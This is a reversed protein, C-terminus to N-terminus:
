TDLVVSLLKTLRLHMALRLLPVEEIEEEDSDVDAYAALQLRQRKRAREARRDSAVRTRKSGRCGM